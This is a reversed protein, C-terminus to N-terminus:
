PTPLLLREPSPAEARALALHPQAAAPENLAHLAYLAFYVAEEADRPTLSGGGAHHRLLHIVSDDRPNTKNPTKAIYERLADIAAGHDKKRLRAGCLLLTARARDDAYWRSAELIACARDVDGVGLAGEVSTLWPARRPARAAAEDVGRAPV